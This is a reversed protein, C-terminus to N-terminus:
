ALAAKYTSWADSIRYFTKARYPRGTNMNFVIVGYKVIGELNTKRTLEVRVGIFDNEHVKVVKYKRDGLHIRSM